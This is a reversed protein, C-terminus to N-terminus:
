NNLITKEKILEIQKISKRDRMVLSEKVIFYDKLRSATAKKDIALIGYVEQLCIKATEMDVLNHYGIRKIVLEIIKKIYPKDSLKILERKILTINYNLERIKELGLLFYADGIFNYKDRLLALRETNNGWRQTTALVYYEEIADKFCGKFSDNAKLKDSYGKWNAHEVSLGNDRYTNTLTYSNKYVDIKLKYDLLNKNLLNKDIHFNCDKDVYIFRDTFHDKGWKCYKLKRLEQSESNHNSVVIKSIEFEKNMSDKFEQYSVDSNYQTNSLIHTVQNKYNSDRIRGIIQKFLTSIDYLTNSNRGDSVIYTKGEKDFIDCGEFCTSTYFNIKCAKDSPKSISYGQLKRKNNQSNACVIKVDKPEIKTRDLVKKIFSVSNVFFHCNGFIKDDLKDNVLDIVYRMPSSTAQKTVTVKEQNPWVVEYIPLDKLEELIYEESIPTATMFTRKEFNLSLELLIRISTDRFVYQNFLVHLEDVLLFCEKFPNIGINNFANIVKPLSNYVVAIKWVKHTKIYEEIVYEPTDGSVGLVKDKHKINESKNAVLSIFPMAIITHKDDRLALETGGCGTIGKYFMCNTPLKTMFESLYTAWEPAQKIKKKM